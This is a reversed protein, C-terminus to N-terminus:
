NRSKRNESLCLSVVKLEECRVNALIKRWYNFKVINHHGMPCTNKHFIKVSFSLRCLKTFEEREYKRHPFSFVKLKFFHEFKTNPQEELAYYLWLPFNYCLFFVEINNQYEDIKFIKHFKIGFKRLKNRCNPLYFKLKSM